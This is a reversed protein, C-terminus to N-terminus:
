SSNTDALRKTFFYLKSNDTSFEQACDTTKSHEKWGMCVNHDTQSKQIAERSKLLASHTQPSDSNGKTHQHAQPKEEPLAHCCSELTGPLKM